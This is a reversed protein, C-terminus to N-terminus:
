DVEKKNDIKKLYFNNSDYQYFSEVMKSGDHYTILIGKTKNGDSLIYDDLFFFDMIDGELNLKDYSYIPIINFNFKKSQFFFSLQM